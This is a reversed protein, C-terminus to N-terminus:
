VKGKLGFVYQLYAKEVQQLGYAEDLVLFKSRRDVNRNVIPQM